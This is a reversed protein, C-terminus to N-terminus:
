NQIRVRKLDRFHVNWHHLQFDEQWCWGLLRSIPHHIWTWSHQALASRLVNEASCRPVAVCWMVEGSELGGRDWETWRIGQVQKLRDLSCHLNCIFSFLDRNFEAEKLLFCYHSIFSVSDEHSRKWASCWVAFANLWLFLQLSLVSQILICDKQRPKSLTACFENVSVCIM